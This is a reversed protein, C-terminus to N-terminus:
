VSEASIRQEIETYEYLGRRYLIEKIDMITVANLQALIPIHTKRCGNRKFRFCIEDETMIMESIEM